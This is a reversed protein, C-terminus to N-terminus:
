YIDAVLNSVSLWHAWDNMAEQKTKGQGVLGYKKWHFGNQTAIDDRPVACCWLKGVRWYKLHKTSWEDRPIYKM